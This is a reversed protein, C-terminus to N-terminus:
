KEEKIVQSNGFYVKTIKDGEVEYIALAKIIVGDPFGTVTEHDIVMNGQVIRNTIECHLDPVGKFLENYVKVMSQKGEMTLERPFNYIKVSDSYPALFADIDRANYGDVQEQVLSEPTVASEQGFSYISVVLTILAILNKM